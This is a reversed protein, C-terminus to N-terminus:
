ILHQCASFSVNQFCLAFRLASLQFSFNQVASERPDVSIWGLASLLLHFDRVPMLEPAEKRGL